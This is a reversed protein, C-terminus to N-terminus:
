KRLNIIKEKKGKIEKPIIEELSILFTKRKFTDNKSDSLIIQRCKTTKIRLKLATQTSLKRSLMDVDDLVELEELKLKNLCNTKIM